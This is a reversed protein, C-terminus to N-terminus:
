WIDRSSSIIQLDNFSLKNELVAAVVVSRVFVQRGNAGGVIAVELGAPFNGNTAAFLPVTAGADAWASTNPSVGYLYNKGMIGTIATTLTKISGSAVRHSPANTLTGTANISSFAVTYDTSSTNWCTSIGSGTLTTALQRLKGNDTLSSIQACDAYLGSEWETAKYTQLNRILPSNTPTLYYYSFKYLDVRWITGGVDVERTESIYGFFVSNGYSAAVYDTSDPSLSGTMEITPLKSGSMVAPAGSMNMRALLGRGYANNEFLRKSRGLRLYIRNVTNQNMQKMVNGAEYSTFGHNTSMLVIVIIPTIIALLTAAIAVEPLTFGNPRM